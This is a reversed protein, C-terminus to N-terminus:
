TNGNQAGWTLTVQTFGSSPTDQATKCVAGDIKRANTGSVTLQGDTSTTKLWANAAGTGASATNVPANGEVLYWGYQSAVNASMAIAIPGVSAVVTRTTTGATNDYIVCDGAATSAVGKLYLFIGEGYGLTGFDRGKALTGLPHNQTTSTSMLDQVGMWQDTAKFTLQTATPFAM